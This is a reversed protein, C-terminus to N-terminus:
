HFKKRKKMLWVRLPNSQKRSEQTRENDGRTKGVREWALSCVRQTDRGMKTVFAL